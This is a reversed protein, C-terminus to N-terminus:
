RGAWSVRSCGKASPALSGVSCRGARVECGICRVFCLATMASLCAQNRGAVRVAGLRVTRLSAAQLAPFPRSGIGKGAALRANLGRQKRAIRYSRSTPLNILGADARHFRCADLYLRALHPEFDVRAPPKPTRGAQRVLERGIGLHQHSSRTQTDVLFGHDGGVRRQRIRGAAEGSEPCQGLRSEL